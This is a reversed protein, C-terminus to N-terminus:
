IDPHRATCTSPARHDPKRRCRSHAQLRRNCLPPPFAIYEVGCHCIVIVVDATNRLERVLNVVMEVEWGFVGPGKVASTLDEGESFNIIGIKIGKLNIVLPAKAEEASMGAGLYRISNKELLDRTQGFAEIGYDFVHNNALTVVDFPVSTLGKIHESRGKFVAGSKWVPNEGFLTCEMNTISLDSSRLVPLVNGYIVEPDNKIIEDFVRIPAWDGSIIIEADANRVNENLWCGNKWDFGGSAQHNTKIDM